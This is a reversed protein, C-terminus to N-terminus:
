RTAVPPAGPRCAELQMIADMAATCGSALSNSAAPNHVAAKWSKRTQEITSVYDVQAQVPMNEMCVALALLYDDCARVGIPCVCISWAYGNPLCQQLGQSGDAPCTCANREGPTCLGKPVPQLAKSEAQHCGALLVTLFLCTLCKM